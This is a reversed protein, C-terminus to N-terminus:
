SFAGQKALTMGGRNWNHVTTSSLQIAVSVYLIWPLFNIRLLSGETLNSILLYVLFLFPWSGEITSTTRGLRFAARFTILLSLLLLALGLIGLDLWVDLFGNHSYFAEFGSLKWVDASPGNNGRWFAGYGYGLYPHEVIMTWVVAWLATRGTLGPDRDIAAAARDPDSTIGGTAIVIAFLSVAVIVLAKFHNRYLVRVFLCVAIVGCVVLSTASQSLFVLVLSLAASFRYIWGGTRSNISLVSFLLFALAMNMGLLNKHGYIGLWTGALEDSGVGFAPLLFVFALSLVASVQYVRALILLLESTTFRVALYYGVISTGLLAAAKVFTLAANDSWLVSVFAVGLIAPLHWIKSKYITSRKGYKWIFYATALYVAIWIANTVLTGARAGSARAEEDQILLLFAGSSMLLVLGAFWREAVTPVPTASAIEPVCDADSTRLAEGV